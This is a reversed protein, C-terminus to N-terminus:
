KLSPNNEKRGSLWNGTGLELGNARRYTVQLWVVFVPQQLNEFLFFPPASNQEATELARLM